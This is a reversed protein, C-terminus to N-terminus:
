HKCAANQSLLETFRRDKPRSKGDVGVFRLWETTGKKPPTKPKPKATPDLDVDQDPDYDPFSKYDEHTYDDDTWSNLDRAAGKPLGDDKPDPPPPTGGRVELAQGDNKPAAQAEYPASLLIITILELAGGSFRM